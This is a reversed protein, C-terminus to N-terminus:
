GDVGDGGLKGVKGKQVNHKGKKTQVHLTAPRAMGGDM